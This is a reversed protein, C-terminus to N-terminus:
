PKNTIPKNKKVLNLTPVLKKVYNEVITLGEEVKGADKLKHYMKLVDNVDVKPDKESAGKIVDPYM